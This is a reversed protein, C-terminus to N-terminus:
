WFVVRYQLVSVLRWLVALLAIAASTVRMESLATFAPKTLVNGASDLRVCLPRRAHHWTPHM